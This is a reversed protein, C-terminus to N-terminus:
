LAMPTLDEGGAYGDDDGGALSAPPTWSPPPLEPAAPEDTEAMEGDLCRAAQWGYRERLADVFCYISLRDTERATERAEAWLGGIASAEENDWGMRDNLGGLLDAERPSPLGFRALICVMVRAQESATYFVPPADPRRRMVRQVAAQVQDLRRSMSQRSM